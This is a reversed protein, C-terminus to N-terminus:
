LEKIGECALILNKDSKVPVTRCAKKEIDACQIVRLHCYHNFIFTITVKLTYACFQV